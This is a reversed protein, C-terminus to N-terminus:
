IYSINKNENNIPIENNQYKVLIESIRKKDKRRLTYERLDINSINIHYENDSYCKSKCSFNKCLQKLKKLFCM